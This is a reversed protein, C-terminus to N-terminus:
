VRRGYFGGREIYCRRCYRECPGGNKHKCVDCEQGEYDLGHEGTPCMGSWTTKESTTMPPYSRM